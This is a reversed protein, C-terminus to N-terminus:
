CTLTGRNLVVWYWGRLRVGCGPLSVGGVFVAAAAAPPRAWSALKKEWLNVGDVNAVRRAQYVLADQNIAIVEKNLLIAQM